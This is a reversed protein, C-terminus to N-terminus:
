QCYERRVPRVVQLRVGFSTRTEGPDLKFAEPRRLFSWQRFEDVIAKVTTIKAVDGVVEFKGSDGTYACYQLTDNPGLGTAVGILVEDWPRWKELREYSGRLESTSQVEIWPELIKVPVSPLAAADAMGIESTLTPIFFALAIAAAICSSAVPSRPQLRKWETPALNITKDSM